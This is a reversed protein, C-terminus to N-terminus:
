KTSSNLARDIIEFLRPLNLPKTLYAIFGAALGREEDGLMANASIAIVPIAAANVDSKLVALAEFGNMGPLNIDMLVLDPRQTRIMELGLEATKADLLQINKRPSLVQHMLRLNMSNDEIYLVKFQKVEASM